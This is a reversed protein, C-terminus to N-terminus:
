ARGGAGNGGRGSPGPKRGVVFVQCDSFSTDTFDWDISFTPGRAAMLRLVGFWYLNVAPSIQRWLRM